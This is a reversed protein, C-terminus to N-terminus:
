SEFCDKVSRLEKYDNGQKWYHPFDHQCIQDKAIVYTNKMRM